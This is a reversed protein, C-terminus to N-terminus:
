QSQASPERKLFPVRSKIRELLSMHARAEAAEAAEAERQALVANVEAGLLFIFSSTYIWILLVVVGGLAGYTANYSGFNTVYLGFLYTFPLWTVVFVMAGPSILRFPLSTNPAAWYIFGVALLLLLVIALYRVLVALIASVGTLGLEDAVDQGFAQGAVVLVVSAMVFLGGIVTLGVAVGYRVPMKREEPVGFVQNLAKIITGMGSSAAWITGLIGVSLLGPNNTGTVGEIQTRLLSSADEPLSDGIQNMLEDAPNDIDLASAAFGGAAVLFIMFPFLALFFKYAMEAARGSLDDKGIAKVLAVLFATFRWFGMAHLM